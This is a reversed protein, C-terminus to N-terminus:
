LEKKIWHSIYQFWKKFINKTENHKQYHQFHEKGYYLLGIATSYNSKSIDHNVLSSIKTPIGIRIPMNFIKKASSKLSKIQAAGGTFVIGSRFQYSHNLKKLKEQINLIKTNILHLLETYRPEIVEILTSQKFTKIHKNNDNTIQIQECLESSSCAEAYGYQIKITEAQVFPINFAYSIDNTVTNGAYPIVCSYQLIGNTYITIDITGSGIDAMCVGLQCEDKTLVAKSSALGSFIIHNVKLGCAEIAKIINKKMESNCTILHVKAKIRKGSLGIPNNIGSHEDIYYEQPIIHLIHHKDKIRVCKATHIVNDIDNKTVEDNYIPVMGIENQCTIYKNSLALYVSSIQCDAMNEAQNISNKVCKIISKLDNIIGQNIGKSPCIGIGIINVIGDILMEGVLTVVKTTGIDLGVILDRNREKIM